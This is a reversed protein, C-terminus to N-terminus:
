KSSFRGENLLKSRLLSSYKRKISIYIVIAPYTQVQTAISSRIDCEVVKQLYTKLPFYNKSVRPSFM